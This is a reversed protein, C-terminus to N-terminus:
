RFTAPKSRFPHGSDIPIPPRITRFPHGFRGSHTAPITRFPHGLDDPIRVQPVLKGQVALQLIMERLKQVGSPAEAMIEFNDFFTKLDM